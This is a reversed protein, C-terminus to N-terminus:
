RRMTAEVTSSGAIASRARDGDVDVRVTRRRRAAVGRLHALALRCLRDIANADERVRRPRRRAGPSGDALQVVPTYVAFRPGFVVHRM